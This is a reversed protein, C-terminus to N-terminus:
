IPHVLVTASNVKPNAAEKGAGMKNIEENTNTSLKKCAINIGTGHFGQVCGHGTTELGSGDCQKSKVEVPHTEADNEIAASASAATLASVAFAAALCAFIRIMRM